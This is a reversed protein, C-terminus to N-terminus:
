RGQIIRIWIDGMGEQKMMIKKQRGLFTSYILFKKRELDISGWISEMRMLDSGAQVIRKWTEEIELDPQEPHIESLISDIDKEIQIAVKPKEIIKRSQYANRIAELVEMVMIKTREHRVIPEVPDREHILASAEFSSMVAPDAVEELIEASGDTENTDSSMSGILNETKVFLLHWASMMLFGAQSFDRLRDQIFSKILKTIADISVDWPDMEGAECMKVVTFVVKSFPDRFDSQESLIIKRYESTDAELVTGQVVISKLIEEQM